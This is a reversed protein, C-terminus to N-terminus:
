RKVKYMIKHQQVLHLSSTSKCYIYLKITFYSFFVSTAVLTTIFGTDSYLSSDVNDTIWKYFSTPNPDAKLQKWLESQVRLLPFLFSLGRDELIEMMRDKSNDLETLVCYLIQGFTLIYLM